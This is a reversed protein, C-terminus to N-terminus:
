AATEMAASYARSPTAYQDAFWKLSGRRADWSRRNNVAQTVAELHLPNCCARNRCLHDIHKGAPIEGWHDAYTVRHASTVGASRSGVGIRGYGTAPDIAGTFTWCGSAEVRVRRMVREIVPTPKVAM